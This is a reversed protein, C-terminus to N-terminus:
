GHTRTADKLSRCFRTAASLTDAPDVSRIRDIFASGVVVGDAHHVVSAVQEPTSIGFGLYVPASAHTRVRAILEPLDPPLAARAGTIGLRSICYVFGTARRGAASLAESGSTPAVLYVTALGVEGAVGDWEAADLVPLDTVLVGDVGVDGARRAFASWGMRHVLNAYTM